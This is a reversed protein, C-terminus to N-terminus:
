FLVDKISLFHNVEPAPDQYGGSQVTIESKQLTADQEKDFKRQKSDINKETKEDDEDKKTEENEGGRIAEVVTHAAQQVLNSAQALADKISDMNQKKKELIM